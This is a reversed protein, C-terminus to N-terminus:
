SDLFKLKQRLVLDQRFAAKFSFNLDLTLPM